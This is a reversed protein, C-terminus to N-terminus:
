STPRCAGAERLERLLQRAQEDEFIFRGHLKIPAEGATLRYAIPGLERVELSSGNCTVLKM